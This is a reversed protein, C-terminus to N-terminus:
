KSGQIELKLGAEPSCFMTILKKLQIKESSNRMSPMLNRKRSSISIPRHVTKYKRRSVEKTKQRIDRSQVKEESSNNM